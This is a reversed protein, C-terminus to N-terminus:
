KRVDDFLGSDIIDAQEDPEPTWRRKFRKWLLAGLGLLMGVAVAVFVTRTM